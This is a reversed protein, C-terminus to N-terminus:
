PTTSRCCAPLRAHDVRAWGEVRRREKRAIDRSAGAELRAVTDTAVVFLTRRMAHIRCLTRDDFLARDLDATAFNPVRAVAALYPTAPDSSHLAGLSRAADLVDAATRGLHHRAVLRARREADSIHLPETM